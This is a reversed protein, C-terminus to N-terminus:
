QGKSAEFILSEERHEVQELDPLDGELFARERVDKFGAETLMHAVLDRTPQWRHPSGGVMSQVRSKLTPPEWPHALLRHNFELGPTEYECTRGAVLDAAWRDADPLALRVIGGPRLVRRCDHLVSEAQRLYLHELMHSSYLAEVTDTPAPLGRLVNHRVVNSPWRPRAMGVMSLFRHGGPVRDILLTFSYDINVWGAPANLGCGLNIRM